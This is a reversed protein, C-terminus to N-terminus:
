TPTFWHSLDRQTLDQLKLIDDRLENQIRARAEPLLPPRLEHPLSAENYRMSTNCTFQEDVGIFRQIDHLLSRPDFLLERYLYTKINEAPFLDYYRQLQEYYRGMSVYHWIHEWNDAIRQQEHNMATEFDRHPERGDRILHLYASYARSVPDRLIAIIKTDPLEEHIRGAVLPHYLYLPSAEGIAIEDRVGDFQARYAEPATISLRNVYLDDGPGQFNLQQGRLAFYNTEKLPTLYVQPHQNLYHYIATTGAKAAGIIIFNPSHTSTSM